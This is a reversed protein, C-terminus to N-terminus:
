KLNYLRKLATDIEKKPTKNSKKIFGHILYAKGSLIGYILRAEIKGKVRLEYLDKHIKKSHPMGLNRGHKKLLDITSASKGRVTVPLSLVFEVFRDDTIIVM